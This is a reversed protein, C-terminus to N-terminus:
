LMQNKVDLFFFSKNQRVIVPEACSKAKIVGRKGKSRKRSHFAFPLEFGPRAVDRPLNVRVHYM